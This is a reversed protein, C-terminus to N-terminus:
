RKLIKTSYSNGTKLTVKLLYAGSEFGSIDVTENCSTAKQSKMMRGSLDFLQIFVAPETSV